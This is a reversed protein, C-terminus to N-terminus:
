QVITHTAAVRITSDTVQFQIRGERPKIGIGIKYEGSDVASISALAAFGADDLYSAKFHATIDPRAEVKAPAYYVKGPSVLLSFISDGKNDNRDEIVSWGHISLYNRGKKLIEIHYTMKRPDLGTTASFLRYENPATAKRLSDIQGKKDADLSDAVAALVGGPNTALSGYCYGDLLHLQLKREALLNSFVSLNTPTTIYLDGSIRGEQLNNLLTDNYVAMAKGDGRAVYGTNIPKDANGALYCFDQYDLKNVYTAEFPPYMVVGNSHGILQKWGANMPPTYTGYSLKRFTLLPRIDYFQLALAAVLVVLKWRAAIALRAVGALAILFILYYPMWFFRASARFTGGLSKVINPVPVSFLVKDNLSVIHSVAFLTYLIVLVVLPLLQRSATAPTSDTAAPRSQIRALLRAALLVILLLFIGAGLYMFGEYQHWSVQRLNPFFVSFGEGNYLANLNLSYLGYAGEVNFDAKPSFGVMGTVFWLVLLSVLSAALFRLCAKRGAAKDVFYLKAPLIFVFGLVMMCMYPNILASITLLWWQSRLIRRAMGGAPDRFYNCISAIILWQACLACHLGRYILVPNAVFFLVAIFTYLHDVKFLRFLRITYWATLL